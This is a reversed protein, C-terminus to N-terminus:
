GTSYLSTDTKSYDSSNTNKTSNLQFTVSHNTQSQQSGLSSNLNNRQKTDTEPHNEKNASKGNVQEKNSIIEPASQISSTRSRLETNETWPLPINEYIPEANEALPKTTARYPPVPPNPSIGDKHYVVNQNEINALNTYTRHAESNLHSQELYPHSFNKTSLTRSSVM